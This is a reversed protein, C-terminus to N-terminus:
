KQGEFVFKKELQGLGHHVSFVWDMLIIEKCNLFFFFGITNSCKACPASELALMRDM